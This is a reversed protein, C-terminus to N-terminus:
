AKLGSVRYEQGAVTMADVPDSFYGARQFQDFFYGKGPFEYPIM